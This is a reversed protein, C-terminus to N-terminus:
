RLAPWGAALEPARGLYTAFLEITSRFGVEQLSRAVPLYEPRYLQLNLADLNVQLPSDSGMVVLDPATESINTSWLTANPFVDFFTAIESQVTRRGSEYLPVWQTVVGGPNLHRRVLDFYERTYLAASGKVWPHIPDSTIIDFKEQTTLIYHRADDYVVQVRPDKLVNNNENSFYQSVVQPILPEIECIVIREIGPYLVFTGATVGAGFGVILVSKPNPHALAPINGMMRQLQMDKPASSTEIKGSVHFNRVNNDTRSIAISANMGEGVYLIEPAVPAQTQSDVLGLRLAMLRGYAVLPPPVPGVTMALGIGLLAAVGASRGEEPDSCRGVSVPHDDGAPRTTNRDCRIFVLSFLLAGLIAGATNAAYVRAVLKEAHREQPAASALALSFKRGLLIGIPIRGMHLSHPRAPLQVVHQPIVTPLDALLPDVPDAHVGVM